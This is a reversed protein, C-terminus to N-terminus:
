KSEGQLTPNLLNYKFQAEDDNSYAWRQGCSDCYCQDIEIKDLQSNCEHNPCTEM